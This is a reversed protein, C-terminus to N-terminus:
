PSLITGIKVNGGFYDFNARDMILNGGVKVNEMFNVRGIQDSISVSTGFNPYKGDLPGKLSNLQVNTFTPFDVNRLRVTTAEMLINPINSNFSLGNVSLDRRAKIIAHDKATLHVNTLDVDRLGRLALLNGSDIQLDELALDARSSIILDSNRSTIISSKTFSPQDASMVIIRANSDATKPFEFDGDISTSQISGIILNSVGERFFANLADYNQKIILNNGIYMKGENGYALGDLELERFLANLENLQPNEMLDSQSLFSKPEVVGTQIDALLSLSTTFEIEDGTTSKQDAVESIQGLTLLNGSSLSEDVVNLFEEDSPPIKNPVKNVSLKLITESLLEEDLDMKVLMAQTNEELVVIENIVESSLVALKEFDENALNENSLLTRLNNAGINILNARTETNLGEFKLTQEQDLGLAGLENSFESVIGTKRVQTVKNNNELVISGTSTNSIASVQGSKTDKAISKVGTPVSQKSAVSNESTTESAMDGDSVEKSIQPDDDSNDPKLLSLIQDKNQEEDTSLVDVKESDSNQLDVSVSDITVKPKSVIVKESLSSHSSDVELPENAPSTMSQQNSSDSRNEKSGGSPPNQNTEEASNKEKDSGSKEAPQSNQDSNQTDTTNQTNGLGSKEFDVTQTAETAQQNINSVQQAVVPNIPRNMIEGTISVSLGNGQGILQTDGGKSVFAVTSETVDLDVGSKENFGFQFETGRIGATGIPSEIEFQSGKNLKKTKIVLSGIDLDLMVKSSSPEKDMKEMVLGNADFAEQSFSEVRMDSNERVTLLTGNSLLCLVSSNKGTIVEYGVPLISGSTFESSNVLSGDQNRFSVEGNIEAILINGDKLEESFVAKKGAQFLLLFLLVSKLCTNIRRSM